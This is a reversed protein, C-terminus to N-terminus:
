TPRIIPSSTSIYRDTHTPKRYVSVDLSGDERRRLLMDLFPLTGDEEQEVRFKITARVGNTYSLELWGKGAAFPTFTLRKLPRYVKWCGDPPPPPPPPTDCAVYVPIQCLTAAALIETNSGWAYNAKVANIHEQLTNTIVFPTFFDANALEFDVLMNRLMLDDEQDGTLLAALSRFM